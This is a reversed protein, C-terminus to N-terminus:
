TLQVCECYKVIVTMIETFKHADNQACDNLIFLIAPFCLPM